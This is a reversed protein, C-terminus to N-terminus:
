DKKVIAFEIKGNNILAVSSESLGIGLIRM